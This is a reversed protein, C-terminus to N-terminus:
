KKKLKQKAKIIKLTKIDNASRVFSLGIWEIKEKLIFMLDKKDKSTLCPLTTKTNPFNVGKHSSLVGGFVVKLTVTDRKNTSIAVLSIRGDDLLVRDNPKTDKAFNSYNIYITDKRKKTCFVIKEGKKLKKPKRLRGIRIKPGQLDALIATHVHLEQNIEKISSIIQKAENYNLHSFNLRCVNVGRQIIRRLMEKSSTSPGITAIIKTKRIM